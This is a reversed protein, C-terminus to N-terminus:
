RAHDLIEKRFGEILWERAEQLKLGRSRLYFIQEEDLQGVTAGHSAKVDDAFIELNPKAFNAAEESLILSQALQYSETKQAVPDVAIKGEFSFRAKGKLISKVHQRARTNPAKHEMSAHIHSEGAELDALGYLEAEANSETLQVRASTRLHKGLLVMKIQSDQKLTARIAQMEGEARDIWKLKANADLVFDFLANSFGGKGESSYSITLEAGRGLYLHLRPSAMQDDLYISTIHLAAKCKPPVYLFAGRGQFAGNLVAFPDTELEVWKMLRTQLFLGYSRMAQELPLCVMPAALSRPQLYGNIFTIDGKVPGEEEKALSPLADFRKQVYFFDEHRFVPLGMTQFRDWYKQRVAILLDSADLQDAWLTDLM